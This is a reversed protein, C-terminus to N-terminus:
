LVASSSSDPTWNLTLSYRGSLGTRDVISRGLDSRASGTLHGALQEMSCGKLEISGTKAKLVQCMPGRTPSVLQDEAKTETFKPGSKAIQLTYVSFEKKEHHLLLKFRDALLQQLMSDRQDLNLHPYKGVDYKAEIDFRVHTTWPPVASWLEDDYFGYAEKIVYFLTVDKASVGDDTFNMRWRPQPSLNQRISAVDYRFTTDNAHEAQAKASASTTAATNQALLM